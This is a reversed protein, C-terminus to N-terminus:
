RYTHPVGGPIFASTGPGGTVETLCDAGDDRFYTLRGSLTWFFEAAPHPPPPPPGGGPAVQVEMVFFDGGARQYPVHVLVEDQMVYFPDQPAIQASTTTM